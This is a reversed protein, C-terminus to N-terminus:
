TFKEQISRFKIVNESSSDLIYHAANKNFNSFKSLTRMKLFVTTQDHTSYSERRDEPFKQPTSISSSERKLASLNDIHIETQSCKGAWRDTWSRM